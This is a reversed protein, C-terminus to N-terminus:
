YDARRRLRALSRTLDMSARRVAGQQIPWQYLGADVKGNGALKMVPDLSSTAKIRLDRARQLFREAEAIAEDLASTRM